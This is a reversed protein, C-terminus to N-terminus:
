PTDFDPEEKGAPFVDTVESHSSLCLGGVWPHERPAPEPALDVGRLLGAMSGIMEGMTEGTISISTTDEQLHCVTTDKLPHDPRTAM